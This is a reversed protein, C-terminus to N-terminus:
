FQRYVISYTTNGILVGEDMLYDIVAAEQEEENENEDIEISYDSAISQWAAEAYECCVAIVDLEIEEGCAQEYDEFYEFLIGLGSLSFNDPRISKFADAFQSKDITQKM